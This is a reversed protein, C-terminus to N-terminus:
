FVPGVALDFMLPRTLKSATNYALGVGGKISLWSIPRLDYGGTAGFGVGPELEGGFIGTHAWAFHVDVYFGSKRSPGFSLGGTLAHTGTGLAVKLGRELEGMKFETFQYEVGVGLIGTHTGLGARIAFPGRSGSSSSGQAKLEVDLKAGEAASLSQAVPDYGELEVVVQRLGGEVMTVCPTAACIQRGDIRVRAGSPRSSFSVEVEGVAAGVRPLKAVLSETEKRLQPRMALANRGDVEFWGRQRGQKSEFLRVNLTYIGDSSKILAGSLYYEAKLERAAELTCSAECAKTPDIGNGSLVALTNDGNLVTYGLSSLVDGAVNRVTEELLLRSNEDMSARTNEFPLVAVLQTKGAARALGPTVLVLFAAVLVLRARIGGTFLVRRLM